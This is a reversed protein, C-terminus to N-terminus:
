IWETPFKDPSLPLSSIWETPFEDPSLPPSSIWENRTINIKPCSNYYDLSSIETKKKPIWISDLHIHHSDARLIAVKAVYLGSPRQQIDYKNIFAEAGSELLAKGIILSARKTYLSEFSEPEFGFKVLDSLIDVFGAFAFSLLLKKGSKTGRFLGLLDSLLILAPGITVGVLGKLIIIGLNM